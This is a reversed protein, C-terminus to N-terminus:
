SAEAEAKRALAQLMGDVNQKTLKLVLKKLLPGVLPVNIEVELEMEITTGGDPAEEFTWTGRYVEYDGEIQEFVCVRKEDDWHDEETWKIKRGLQAVVGVWRTVTRGNDRELIEVSEVDPMIEPFSEVDRALRYVVDVPAAAHQTSTVTGM